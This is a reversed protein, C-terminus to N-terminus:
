TQGRRVLLPKTNPGERLTVLDDRLPLGLRVVLREGAHQVAPDDARQEVTVAVPRRRPV